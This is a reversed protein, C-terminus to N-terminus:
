VHHQQLIGLYLRGRCTACLKQIVGSKDGGGCRCPSIVISDHGGEESGGQVISSAM